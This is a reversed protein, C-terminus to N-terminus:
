RNGDVPGGVEQWLSFAHVAAFRGGVDNFATSYPITLDDISVTPQTGRRENGDCRAESGGQPDRTVAKNGSPGFRRM